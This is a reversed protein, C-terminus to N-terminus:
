LPVLPMHLLHHGSAEGRTSLLYFIMMVIAPVTSFLHSRLPCPLHWSALTFPNPAVYAKYVTGFSGTGIKELLTYEEDPDARM